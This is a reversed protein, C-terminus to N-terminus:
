GLGIPGDDDGDYNYKSLTSSGSPVQGGNAVFSPNYTTLGTSFNDPPHNPGADAAFGQANSYNSLQGASKDLKDLATDLVQESLQFRAVVLLLQDSLATLNESSAAIEQTQASMEETSASVEEAAASNEESIVQMDEMSRTVDQTNAVLQRSLSTNQGAINAVLSVGRVLEENATRLGESAKKIQAAEQTTKGVQERIQSLARGAAGTLDSGQEVQKRGNEMLFVVEDTAKQVTGIIQSIEKTAKSSREALSRVADAVVAFGRGHEGARAAEIAANLALLNTQEAIEDITEIIISIQSSKDGLERVKQSSDGVLSRISEMSSITRTITTTGEEVAEEAKKAVQNLLDASSSLQSSVASLNEMRAAAAEVARLQEQSGILVKESASGVELIRNNITSVSISQEQAGKAVQQMTRAIQQVVLDAQTSAQALESAAGNVNLANQYVRALADRMNGIMYAYSQGLADKSSVPQVNVMLDGQAMREAAKSMKSLYYVLDNFHNSLAGIEDSRKVELPETIEGQAVRSAANAVTVIPKSIVRAFIFGAFGAVGTALLTVLILIFLLTTAKGYAESSDQQAVMVWGLGSYTEYGQELAIGMVVQRNNHSSEQFYNNQIVSATAQGGRGTTATATASPLVSQRQQLLRSSNEVATKVVPNNTVYDNVKQDQPNGSALVRGQNDVLFLYGTSEVKPESVLRQIVRFDLRLNVVGLFDGNEARIPASFLIVPIDRTEPTTTLGEIVVRQQLRTQKFWEASGANQNITSKDTSAVIIGDRDTVAMYVYLLYTDSYKKLLTNKEGNLGYMITPTSALIQVDGYREFMVRDITNLTTNSITTLNENSNRRLTDQAFIYVLVTAIIMPVLALAFSTLFLRTQLSKTLSFSKRPKAM